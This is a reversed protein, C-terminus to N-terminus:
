KKEVKRAKLIPFRVAPPLNLEDALYTIKILCKRLVFNLVEEALKSSLAKAEKWEKMIEEANDSQYLVYGSLKISGVDPDYETNFDFFFKVVNGINPLDLKKVDSIKPTSKVEINKAPKEKNKGEIKTIGFGIVAM